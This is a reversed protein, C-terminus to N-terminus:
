CGSPADSKAPAGSTDCIARLSGCTAVMSGDEEATLSVFRPTMTALLDVGPGDGPWGSAAMGGSRVLAVVDAPDMATFFVLPLRLSRASEARDAGVGIFASVVAGGVASALDAALWERAGTAGCILLGGGGRLHPAESRIVESILRAEAGRGSFAYRQM